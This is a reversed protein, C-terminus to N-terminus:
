RRGRDIQCQSLVIIASQVIDDKIKKLNSLFDDHELLLASLQVAPM